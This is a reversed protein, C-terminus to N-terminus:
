VIEAGIDYLERRKWGFGGAESCATESRIAARAFGKRLLKTANKLRAFPPSPNTPRRYTWSHRASSRISRFLPYTASNAGSKKRIPESPPPSAYANSREERSEATSSIGNIGRSWRSDRRIASEKSENIARM